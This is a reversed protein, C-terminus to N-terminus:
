QTSSLAAIMDLLVNQFPLVGKEILFCLGRGATKSIVPDSSLCKEKLYRVEDMQNTNKKLVFEDSKKKINEVLMSITRTVIVPDNCNIKYEIENM